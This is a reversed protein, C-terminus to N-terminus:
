LWTITASFVVIILVLSICTGVVAVRGSTLLGNRRMNEVLEENSRGSNRWEMSGLEFKKLCRYSNCLFRHPGQVQLATASILVPISATGLARAILM